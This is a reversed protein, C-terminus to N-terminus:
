FPIHECNIPTHAVGHGGQGASGVRDKGAGLFELSQIRGTLKSAAEGSAKHFEKIHLDEISLFVTSGKLLHDALSEARKGWLGAEMFQSARHGQHDRKGFNYALQLNIVPEGSPVRRLEADRTIRFIGTFINM